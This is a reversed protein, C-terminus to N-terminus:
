MLDSINFFITSSLVKVFFIFCGSSVLLRLRWMRDKEEKTGKGSFFFEIRKEFFFLNVVFSMM